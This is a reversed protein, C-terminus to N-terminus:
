KGGTIVPWLNSIDKITIAVVLLLLLVFGVSHVVREVNVSVPRRRIKGIFLFLLRGGDLAPIPLINLVALNLSLLAMFQVLYSFGLRAAQGTMVAVGVPGSVAPTAESTFLSKILGGFAVFIEKTYVFTSRAGQYLAEYWVYQIAGVEAIAVGIGARGLTANYAPTIAKTLREGSRELTVEVAVDQHSGFYEQVTKLTPMAVTDLQVISDGALLGGKEAPQGSLVQMIEVHINKAGSGALEPGAVSSGVMFAASLLVWALFVNMFVGAAVVAARVAVSKSMFNDSENPNGGDEGKIRVFGGLPLWNISYVTSRARSADKIEKDIARAGWIIHWTKKGSADVLRRIGAIRPPFGFGFEEVTIGNKRAVFFHGWEHSLVLVALVAIFILATVM